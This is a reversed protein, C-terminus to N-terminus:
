PKSAEGLVKALKAELETVHSDSSWAILRAIEAQAKALQERLSDREISLQMNAARLTESDDMAKDLTEILWRVAADGDKRAHEIEKLREEISDTM